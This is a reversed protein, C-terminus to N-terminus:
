VVLVVAACLALVIGVRQLVTPREHLFLVAALATVAPYLSTLVVSIGLPGRQLALLVAINAAIDGTGAVGVVALLRRAPAAAAGAFVAVAFALPISVLRGSVLPWLGSAESTQDLAIFFAAFGISAVVARAVVAASVRARERESAVLAVAAVALMIGLWRLSTISEGSLLGWLVPILATLASTLPSVISMTGAALAGYLAVIGIIGFVGALAGFLLDSRAVEDAPVTLMGLFLLPLGLLQSWAAVGVPRMSRSALGGSFDAIGYLVASTLALFQSVYGSLTPAVGHTAPGM